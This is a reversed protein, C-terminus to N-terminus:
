DIEYGVNIALKTEKEPVSYGKFTIIPDTTENLAYGEIVTCYEANECICNYVGNKGFGNAYEMKKVIKHEGAVPALGYGCEKTCVVSKTCDNGSLTHEGKYFADCKNYDTIIYRGTYNKPNQSYESWSVINNANYAVVIYNNETAGTTWEANVFNAISVDLQAKTGVFFFKANSCGDFAYSVRYNTDPKSAYFSAPLYVEQLATATHTLSQHDTCISGNRNVNEFGKFNAGFRLVKLNKCNRFLNQNVYELSDPFQIEEIGSGYFAYQHIRTLKSNPAFTVTKLSLTNCFTAGNGDGDSDITEASAPINVVEINRAEHCLKYPIFTVPTEDDIEGVIVPTEQFLSEPFETLTNPLYAFLINNQNRSGHGGFAPITKIGANDPFNVSITNKNTVPSTYTYAGSANISGAEGVTKLSAVTHVTDSGETTTATIYWTLHNGDADTKAFGAGQKNSILYTATDYDYSYLTNGETDKYITKASASVVFLCVFAMVLVTLLLLKKKM